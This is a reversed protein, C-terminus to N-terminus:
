SKLEHLYINVPKVRPNYKFYTLNNKMNPKSHNNIEVAIALLQDHATIKLIVRANLGTLM